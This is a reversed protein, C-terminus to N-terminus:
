GNKIGLWTVLASSLAHEEGDREERVVAPRVRHDLVEFDDFAASFLDFTESSTVASELLAPRAKGRADIELRDAVIGIAVVGGPRMASSTRALFAAIAGVGPLHEISSFALVLDAPAEFEYNALDAQRTHLLVETGSPAADRLQSLASSLLDVAYVHSGAPLRQLMPITHRGIGAGLDYATIPMDGPILNLADDLLRHPRHLWTGPGGLTASAYLEEHYRVTEQRATVFSDDEPAM